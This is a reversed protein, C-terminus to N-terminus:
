NKKFHCLNYLKASVLVALTESACKIQHKVCPLSPSSLASCGFASRVFSGTSASLTVTKLHLQLSLCVVGWIVQTELVIVLNKVIIDNISSVVFM